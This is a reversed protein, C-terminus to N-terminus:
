KGQFYVLSGHEFLKPGKIRQHKVGSHILITIDDM